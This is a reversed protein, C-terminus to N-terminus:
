SLDKVLVSLFSGCIKLLSYYTANTYDLVSIQGAMKKARYEIVPPCLTKNNEWHVNYLLFYNDKYNEPHSIANRIARLTECLKKLEEFINTLKIKDKSILTDNKIKLLCDSESLNDTTIAEKLYYLKFLTLMHSILNKCEAFFGDITEKLLPIQPLLASSNEYSQINETVQKTIADWQALLYNNIHFISSFESIIHYTLIKLEKEPRSGIIRYTNQWIPHGGSFDFEKTIQNYTDYKEGTNKMIGKGAVHKYVAKNSFILPPLGEEMLFGDFTEGETFIKSFDLISLETTELEQSM